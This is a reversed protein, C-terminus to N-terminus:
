LQFYTALVFLLGVFYVILFFKKKTPVMKFDSFDNPNIYLDVKDGEDFDWEHKYSNPHIHRTWGKYTYSFTPCYVRYMEGKKNKRGIHSDISTVTGEVKDYKEYFAELSFQYIKYVFVTWLIFLILTLLLIKM